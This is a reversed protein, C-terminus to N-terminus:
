HSPQNHFLTSLSVSFLLMQPMDYILVIGITVCNLIAFGVRSECYRYRNRLLNKKEYAILLIVRSFPKFVPILILTITFVCIFASVYEDVIEWETSFDDKPAPASPTFRSNIDDQQITRVGQAISHAARTHGFGGMGLRDVAAAKTPDAAVKAQM